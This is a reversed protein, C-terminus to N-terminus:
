YMHTIQIRMRTNFHKICAKKLMFNNSNIKVLFEHILTGDKSNWVKISNERQYNQATIVLSDDCNWVCMNVTYKSNNALANM